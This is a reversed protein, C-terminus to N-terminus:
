SSPLQLQIGHRRVHGAAMDIIESWLLYQPREGGKTVSEIEDYLHDLFTVSLDKIPDFPGPLFFQVRMTPHTDM